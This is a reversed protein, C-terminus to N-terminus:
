RRAPATHLSAAHVMKSLATSPHLPARLASVWVGSCYVTRSTNRFVAAAAQGDSLVGQTGAFHTGRATVAPDLVREGVRHEVRGQGERKKKQRMNLVKTTNSPNLM